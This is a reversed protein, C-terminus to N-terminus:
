YSNILEGSENMTMMGDLMEQVIGGGGGTRPPRVKVKTRPPAARSTPSPVNPREVRRPVTARPKVPVTPVTTQPPSSGRAKREPTMTPTPTMGNERPKATRGTPTGNSNPVYGRGNVMKGRNPNEKYGPPTSIFKGGRNPMTYWGYHYFIHRNNYFGYRLNLGVYYRWTSYNYWGCNVMETYMDVFCMQQSVTPSVERPPGEYYDSVCATAVLSLFLISLMLKIKNM